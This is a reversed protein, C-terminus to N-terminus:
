NNLIYKFIFGENEYVILGVERMSDDGKRIFLRPSSTTIWNEKRHEVIKFIWRTPDYDLSDINVELMGKTWNMMKNQDVKLACQYYWSSGGPVDFIVHHQSKFGNVNFLDFEADIIESYAKLEESIIEVRESQDDYDISSLKTVTDSCSMIM